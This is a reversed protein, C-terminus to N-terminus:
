IIEIGNSRFIRRVVPIWDYGVDVRIVYIGTITVRAPHKVLCHAIHVEHHEGDLVTFPSAHERSGNETIVLNEFRIEVPHGVAVPFRLDM